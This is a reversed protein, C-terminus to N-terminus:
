ARRLRVASSLDDATGVVLYRTARRLPINLLNSNSPSARNHKSGETNEWNYIEGAKAPTNMQDAESALVHCM